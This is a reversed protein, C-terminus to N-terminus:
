RDLEVLVCPGGWVIQMGQAEAWRIAAPDEAGPQFWVQRIGLRVCTELVGRALAPPVVVGVAEPRDPLDALDAYLPEGDLAPLRPNVGDARRGHAKLARWVRTGFKTEDASVGVVAWHHAQIMRDVLAEM